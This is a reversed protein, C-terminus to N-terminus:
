EMFIFAGDVDDRCSGFFIDEIFLCKGLCEVTAAALIGFGRSSHLCVHFTRPSSPHEAYQFSQTIIVLRQALNSYSM